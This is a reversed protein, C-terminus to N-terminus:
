RVGSLLTIYHKMTYHRNLQWLGHGREKTDEHHSGKEMLKPNERKAMCIEADTKYKKLKNMAAVIEAITTTSVASTDKKREREERKRM